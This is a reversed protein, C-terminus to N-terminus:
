SHFAAFSFAPTAGALSRPNFHNGAGNNAQIVIDSGRPLTSQFEIERNFMKGSRPRERSPAHISIPIFGHAWVAIRDSGRPLTSQFIPLAASALWSAPRERSPAHISIISLISNALM